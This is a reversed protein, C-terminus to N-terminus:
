KCIQKLVLNQRALGKLFAEYGEPAQPGPRGEEDLPTALYAKIEPTVPVPESLCFTNHRQALDEAEQHFSATTNCGSL